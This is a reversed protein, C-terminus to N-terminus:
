RDVVNSEWGGFWGNIIEVVLRGFCVLGGGVM